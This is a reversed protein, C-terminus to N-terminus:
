NSLYNEYAAEKRLGRLLGDARMYNNGIEKIRENARELEREYAKVTEIFLFAAEQFDAVTRRLEELEKM